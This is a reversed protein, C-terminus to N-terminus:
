NHHSFHSVLKKMDKQLNPFNPLIPPKPPNLHPSLNKTLKSPPPKTALNNFMVAHLDFNHLIESKDGVIPSVGGCGVFIPEELGGDLTLNRKRVV